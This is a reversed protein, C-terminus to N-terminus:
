YLLDFLYSSNDSFSVAARSAESAVSSFAIEVLYPVQTLTEATLTDSKRITKVGAHEYNGGGFTALHHSSYTRDYEDQPGFRCCIWFRAAIARLHYGSQESFVFLSRKGM